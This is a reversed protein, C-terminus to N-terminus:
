ANEIAKGGAGEIKQKAKEVFKKAKITLPQTLEGTSIVKDYGFESIDIETKNIKKALADIDRLTIAKEERVAKPPITFGKKNFYDPEFRIAWSKKHKFRGSLGRGGRSGAGRNKKHSGKGCTREGRKKRIKKVRRVVM